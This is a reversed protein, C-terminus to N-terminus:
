QKKDYVAAKKTDAKNHQRAIIQKKLNEYMGIGIINHTVLHAKSGYPRGAIIKDAEADGIGPLKKLQARTASNIDVLGIRAGAKRKVDMENKALPTSVKAKSSADQSVDAKNEVAFTQSAFLLSSTAILAILIFPQKM